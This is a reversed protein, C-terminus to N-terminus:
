STLGKSDCLTLFVGFVTETGAVKPMLMKKIDCICLIQLTLTPYVSFNSTAPINKATPTKKQNYKYGWCAITVPTLFHL